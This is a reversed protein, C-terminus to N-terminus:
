FYLDYEEADSNDDDQDQVAKEDRICYAGPYCVGLERINISIEHDGGFGPREHVM